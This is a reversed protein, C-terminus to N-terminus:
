QGVLVPLLQALGTLMVTRPEESLFRLTEQFIPIVHRWCSAPLGQKLSGLAFARESSTDISRVSDSFMKAAEIRRRVSIRAVLYALIASRKRPNRIEATADLAFEAAWERLPRTGYGIVWSLADCRAEPDVVSPIECRLTRLIDARKYRPLHPLLAGLSCLRDGPETIERAIAIARNVMSTKENGPLHQALRPLMEAKAISGLDADM